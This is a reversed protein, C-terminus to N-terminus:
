TRGTVVVTDGESLGLTGAASGNQVAVEVFGSSGVLVNIRADQYSSSLGEVQTGAVEFSPAPPLDDRRINSIANGFRDIHLIVGIIDNGRHVPLSHPLLAIRDVVPGLENLDTGHAHYAAAPAFVDRGHFTNSVEKLRYAPNNLEVAVAARLQADDGTVVGQDAMVHTFLGNDPGIFVGHETKIAV